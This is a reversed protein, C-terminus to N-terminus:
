AASMERRNPVTVTARHVQTLVVLASVLLVFSLVVHAPHALSLGVLEAARSAYWFYAVIAALVARAWGHSRWAVALVPLLFVFDYILHKFCLLSILSACALALVWDGDRIPRYAVLTFLLLGAAAAVYGVLSGAGAGVVYDAITMLDAVGQGVSRQSVQLPQVAVELLPGGSVVAFVVLAGASVAASVLVARWRGRLLGVLAIPAFSYKTLAVALLAGAGSARAVRFALVACLLILMAQQGNSTVNRTPTAILLLAVLATQQLGPLRLWRGVVMAVAVAMMLNMVAWIGKAVAFPLVGLPILLLYLLHLYNPLQALIIQDSGTLAAAYPNAGSALVRAPSWQFDQSTDLANGVGVAASGAALACLVVVLGVRIARPRLTTTM